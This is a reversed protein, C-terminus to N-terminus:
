SREYKCKVASFPNIGRLFTYELRGDVQRLLQSRVYTQEEESLGHEPDANDIALVLGQNGTGLRSIFNLLGEMTFTTIGSFAINRLNRLHVISELSADTLQLGGVYLDDLLELRESLASIHNDSFMASVGILKLARLQNLQCLSHVLVDLDDRFEVPESDLTLRQISPQHLLAQHFTKQDKQAYNDIELHELKIREELLVPTAIAAGSIFGNLILLNLKRSEILWSVVELFVDHQTKELDITKYIDTLKLSELATCGKLFGMHPIADNTLQLELHNLSKGHCNLALSSEAGFDVRSYAIFSTLTQGPLGSFIAALKQDCDSAM